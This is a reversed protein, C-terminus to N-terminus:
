SNLGRRSALPNPLDVPTKEGRLKESRPKAGVMVDLRANLEAFRRELATWFLSEIRKIAKELCSEAEGAYEGLVEGFSERQLEQQATMEARLSALEAQMETRLQAVSDARQERSRERKRAREDAEAQERWHEVGDPDSLQIGYRNAPM